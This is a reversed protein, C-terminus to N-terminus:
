ISWNDSSFCSTNCFFLAILFLTASLSTSILDVNEASNALDFSNVSAFIAETVLSFSSSAARSSTRILSLSLAAASHLSSLALISSTDVAFSAELSCTSVNSSLTTSYLSIIADRSSALSLASARSRSSWPNFPSSPLWAKSFVLFCISRRSSFLSERRSSTSSSLFRFSCISPPYGGLLLLKLPSWDCTM